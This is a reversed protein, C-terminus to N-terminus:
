EAEEPKAELYRFDQREWLRDYAALRDEPFRGLKEVLGAVLTEVLGFISIQSDFPSPADVAVSLTVDADAALPSLWPDTVLVVTAGQLAAQRGLEVTTRQYRRVDFVVLIDGRRADLAYAVWDAAELHRAGPRLIELHLALSKAALGSFRGGAVFVRRREDALLDVVQAFAVPDLESLSRDLADILIQRSRAVAGEGAAFSRQQYQLLPSTAREDIENLLAQQFAPYGEFGLRNVLRIITPGSVQARAALRAVTELGAVPYAALIERAVRREARPLGSLAERIQNAVLAAM